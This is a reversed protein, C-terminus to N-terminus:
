SSAVLGHTELMALIANIKANTTNFASIIEAETDLDGATYDTKLDDIHIQQEKLIQVDDIKLVGTLNINGNVELKEGPTTTGIGVNGAGTIRLKETIGNPSSGDNTYFVMDQKNDVGYGVSITGIQGAQWEVGSYAHQFLLSPGSLADNAGGKLRLTPNLGSSTPGNVDLKYSPSTTGIGVNGTTDITLQRAGNTGFDIRRNGNTGIYPFATNGNSSTILISKTADNNDRVLIGKNANPSVAIDLEKGPSSTGIGVRGATDLAIAAPNTILGDSYANVIYLNSDSARYGIHSSGVSDQWIHLGTAQGATNHIQLGNAYAIGSVTSSGFKGKGVVDLKAEPSTTGIGVNGSPQINFKNSISSGGVIAFDGVVNYSNYIKWSPTGTQTSSLDLYPAASNIKLNGGNIELKETPSTTGIGVNGLNNIYLRTASNTNDYLGIDGNGVIRQKISWDSSAGSTETLRLDAGQRSIHLGALPTTTGIGVNGDDTIRVKENLNPATGHGVGFALYDNSLGDVNNWISAGYEGTSRMLKIEPQGGDILLHLLANPSTTGIGVSTGDDYIISNGIGSTATFKSIYNATGTGTVPNTLADQKGNWTNKETTTVFKNTTLTDSIDDADLVVAGQQNNVSTVDDSNDSKELVGADNYIAWDGLSFDIDFQTGAVGVNYVWGKKNEDTATLTPTNTDADWVGKYLLLTSPLRTLPVKGGSDLDAYGNNQGKNASDEPTFGLANQKNNFTNWDTSSLYGSTTTNSQSISATNTNFSLPTTWSDVRKSYADNYNAHNYSSEHTGVASSGKDSNSIANLTRTIGDSFTLPVEYDTGAGLPTQLSLDGAALLSSNNITKINTGSVLADQKASWTTRLLTSDTLDKIDFDSATYTTDVASITFDPYTGSISVNDSATLSVTKDYLNTIGESLNDTTLDNTFGSLNIDTQDGGIEDWDVVSPSDTFELGDETSKVQLLKNANGEYSIPTDNLNIFNSSNFKNDFDTNFDISDYKKDLESQVSDSIPLNKTKIKKTQNSSIDVIPFIDNEEATTLETLESIKKNM